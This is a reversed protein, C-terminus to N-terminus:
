MRAVSVRFCPVLGDFAVTSTRMQLIKLRDQNKVSYQEAWVLGSSIAPRGFLPEAREQMLTNASFVTPLNVRPVAPSLDEM